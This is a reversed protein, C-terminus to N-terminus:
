AASLAGTKAAIRSPLMCRTFTAIVPPQPRSRTHGIKPACDPLLVVLVQTSNPSRSTAPPTAPLSRDSPRAHKGPAIGALGLRGLRKVDQAGSASAAFVSKGCRGIAAPEPLPCRQRRATEEQDLM